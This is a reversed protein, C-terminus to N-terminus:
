DVRLQIGGYEEKPFLIPAAASSSSRQIYGTSLNMQTSAKLTRLEVESLNFIRGYPIKFELQMHITHDIPCHLALTEAMAKSIVYVFEYYMAPIFNEKTQLYGGTQQM